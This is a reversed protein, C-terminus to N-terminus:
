PDLRAELSGFQGPEPQARPEATGSPPVCASSAAVPSGFRELGFQERARQPPFRRRCSRCSKGIAARPRRAFTVLRSAHSSGPALNVDM